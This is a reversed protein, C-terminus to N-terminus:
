IVEVSIMDEDILKVNIKRDPYENRIKGSTYRPLAGIDYGSKPDVVLYYPRSEYFAKELTLPANKPLTKIIDKRMVSSDKKCEAFTGKLEVIVFMGPKQGKILDRIKPPQKRGALYDLIEM